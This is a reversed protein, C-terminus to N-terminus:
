PPHLGQARPSCSRGLEGAPAGSQALEDPSRGALASNFGQHHGRRTRAPLRRRDPPRDPLGLRLESAGAARAARAAVSRRRARGARRQAPDLRARRPEVHAPRPRAGARRPPDRRRARNTSRSRCSTPWSSCAELFTVGEHWHHGFLETDFAVVSDDDVGAVFEPAHARASRAASPTTPRATTRGAQHARATLRNTDRYDGHSPYGSEHWVRDIAARDLPVLM